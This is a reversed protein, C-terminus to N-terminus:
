IDTMDLQSTSDDDAIFNDDGWSPKDNIEDLLQQYPVVPEPIPEEINSTNSVTMNYHPELKRQEELLEAKLHDPLYSQFFTLKHTMDKITTDIKVILIDLQSGINIDSKYTFKLNDIGNKALKLENLILSLNVCNKYYENSKCYIKNSYKSNVINEMAKITENIISNVEFVTQKRSDSTVFRKIPEYFTGNELAIIGDSSRSLRGNKQLKSLIKLNIFLKDDM